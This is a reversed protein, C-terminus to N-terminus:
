GNVQFYGNVPLCLLECFDDFSESLRSSLSHFYTKLQVLKFPLKLYEVQYM